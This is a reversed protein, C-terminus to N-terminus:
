DERFESPSKEYCDQFHLYFYNMNTYGVKNAIYSVKYDTNMLLEKARKMRYLMLYQSFKMDTEKAFLKGLYGSSVELRDALVSLNLNKGYEEWVIKLIKRVLKSFEKENKELIEDYLGEDEPSKLISGQLRDVIISELIKELEVRNIPKLLYDVVGQRMAERAYVFEDYGSIMITCLDPLEKKLERQLEYGFEKGICVDMIAIHPRWSRGVDLAEDFSNAARIEEIQYKEWPLFCKLGETIQKEDDVLMLRYM